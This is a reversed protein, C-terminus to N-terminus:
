NKGERKRIKNKDTGVFRDSTEEYCRRQRYRNEYWQNQLRRMADRRALYNGTVVPKQPVLLQAFAEIIEGIMKLILKM